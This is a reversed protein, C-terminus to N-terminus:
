NKEYFRTYAAGYVKNGPRLKHALQYYQSAATLFYNQELVFGSMYATEAASTKTVTNLISDVAQKYAAAEWLKLYYRASKQPHHNSVTWYYVGPSRLKSAFSDLHFNGSLVRGKFSSTHSADNFVKLLLTDNGQGWKIKLDGTLYNITDVDFPLTYGNGRKVAGYLNMDQRGDNEGWIQKCYAVVAMSSNIGCRGDLANLRLTDPKDLKIINYQKCILVVQAGKSLSIMDTGYLKDGKKLYSPVAGSMKKVKGQAYYVIYDPPQVAHASQFVLMLALATLTLNIQISM